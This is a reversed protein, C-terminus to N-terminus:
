GEVDIFYAKLRGRQASAGVSAFLGMVAFMALTCGFVKLTKTM